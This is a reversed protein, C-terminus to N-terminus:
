KLYGRFNVGVECYLDNVVLVDRSLYERNYRTLGPAACLIRMEAPEHCPEFNETNRKPPKWGKPLGNDERESRGGQNKARPQPRGRIEQGGGGGGRGQLRSHKNRNNGGGGRGRNGGDRDGNHEEDDQSSPPLPARSRQNLRHRLDNSDLNTRNLKDRLDDVPDVGQQQQGRGRGRGGGGGGRGGGRGNERPERLQQRPPSDVVDDAWSTMPQGRGMQGPDRDNFAGPRYREISGHRKHGNSTNNADNEAM